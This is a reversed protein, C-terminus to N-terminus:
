SVAEKLESAIRRLAELRTGAAPLGLLIAQAEIRLMKNGITKHLAARIESELALVEEMGNAQAAIM